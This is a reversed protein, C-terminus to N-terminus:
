ESRGRVARARQMFALVDKKTSARKEGASRKSQMQAAPASRNLETGPSKLANIEGRLQKSEARKPERPSQQLLTAPESKNLREPRSRDPTEAADLRKRWVASSLTGVSLPKGDRSTVGAATLVRIMDRWGMGRREAADFWALHGAVLQSLKKRGGGPLQYDAVMARLGVELEKNSAM